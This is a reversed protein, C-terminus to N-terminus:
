DSCNGGGCSIRNSGGKQLRGAAPIGAGQACTQLESTMKELFLMALITATPRVGRPGYSPM